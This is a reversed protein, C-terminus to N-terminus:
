LLERATIEAALVQAVESVSLGDTDMVMDAASEYLPLRAALLEDMNGNRLLPRSNVAERGLRLRISKADTRLYICFAGADKLAQVSEPRTPTGGGLSLVGGDNTTLLERLAATEIERFAAEGSIAFIEPVSRGERRVIYSDLDEFGCHLMAALRKGVSSKGSGMFGILCITM